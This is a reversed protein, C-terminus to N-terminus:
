LSNQHPIKIQPYYRARMEGDIQKNEQLYNSDLMRRVQEDVETFHPARRLEAMQADSCERKWSSYKELQLFLFMKKAEAMEPKDTESPLEKLFPFMEMSAHTSKLFALAEFLVIDEKKVEGTELYRKIGNVAQENEHIVMLQGFYPSMLIDERFYVNITLTKKDNNVIPDTFAFCQNMSDKEEEPCFAAYFTMFFSKEFVDFHDFIIKNDYKKQDVTYFQRRLFTKHHEALLDKIADTKARQYPTKGEKDVPNTPHGKELLLKCIEQHGRESAIHLPTSGKTTTTVNLLGADNDLLEAAQEKNGDQIAKLFDLRTDQAIGNLM